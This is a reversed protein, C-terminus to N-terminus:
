GKPNALFYVAAAGGALVLPNSLLGTLLSQSGGSAAYTAPQPTATTYGAGLLSSGSPPTQSASSSQVPNASFPAYPTAAAAGGYSINLIPNFANSVNTQADLTNQNSAGGGGGLAALAALGVLPFAM